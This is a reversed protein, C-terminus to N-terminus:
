KRLEEIEASLRALEDRIFNDLGVTYDAQLSPNGSGLRHTPPQKDDINKRAAKIKAATAM